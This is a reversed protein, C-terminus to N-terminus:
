QAELADLAQQIVEVPVFAYIGADEYAEMLDACVQKADDSIPRVEMKTYETAKLTVRPECYHHESGQISLGQFEEFLWNWKKSRILHNQFPQAM